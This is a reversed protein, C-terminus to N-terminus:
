DSESEGAYQAPKSSSSGDILHSSATRGRCDPPYKPCWGCKRGPSNLNIAEIYRVPQLYHSEVRWLAAKAINNWSYIVHRIYNTNTPGLSPILLQDPALSPTLHQTASCGKLLQLNSNVYRVTRWPHKKLQEISQTKNKLVLTRSLTKIGATSVRPGRNTVADCAVVREFPPYVTLPDFREWVVCRSKSAVISFFVCSSEVSVM